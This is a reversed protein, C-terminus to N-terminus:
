PIEGLRRVDRWFIVPGGLDQTVNELDSSTKHAGLVDWIFCTNKGLYNLQEWSRQQSQHSSLPEACLAMYM